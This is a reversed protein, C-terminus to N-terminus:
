SSSAPGTATPERWPTSGYTALFDGIMENCRLPARCHPEHGSGPMVVLEAGSLRALERGRATPTIADADGHIVLAPCRLAAAYERALEPGLDHKGAGATALLVEGSTQMGMAFFHEVEELSDPETFCQSFFFRLFDPFDALWHHRNWKAWGQHEPLEELFTANAAVREPHGPALPVNPAVFVVAGIREPHRAALTLAWAGGQSSGMVVARKVACADLVAIADEAFLLDGYLEPDTPRDSAGNGLGDFVIVRHSEALFPVQHRWHDSHVISWTPLLLITEDGAGFEQWAIRQGSREVHGSRVPEFGAITV